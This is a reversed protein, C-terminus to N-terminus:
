TELPLYTLTVTIADAMTPDNNVVTIYITSSQPSDQNAGIVNQWAWQYPVTDINVSTIVNATIEPPIPSDNARVSDNSQATPTGYIRVECPSTVNMAILQFSEAMQVNGAFFAGAPLLPTTLVATKPLLKTTTSSSSSSSSSTSSASSVVTTETTSLVPLPMVRIKPVISGDEFQRLTDPDSNFPPLVTRLFANSKEVHPVTAIVPLKATVPIYGSLNTNIADKISPM